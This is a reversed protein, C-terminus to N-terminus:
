QCSARSMSIPCNSSLNLIANLEGVLPQVEEDKLALRALKAVRRVTKEDVSM